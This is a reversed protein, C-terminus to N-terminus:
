LLLTTHNLAVRSISVLSYDTVVILIPYGDNEVDELGLALLIQRDIPRLDAKEPHEIAMASSCTGVVETVIKVIENHLVFVEGLEGVLSDHCTELFALTAEDVQDLYCLATSLTGHRTLM